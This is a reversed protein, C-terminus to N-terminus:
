GGGSAELRQLNEIQSTSLPLPKPNIPTLPPNVPLLPSKLPLSPDPHYRLLNFTVPQSQIIVNNQSDIIQGAIVHTGRDVNTLVFAPSAQPQGVPKGDMILQYMNGDMLGPNSNLQVVVVGENQRIAEDDKPSSIELSAYTKAAKDKDSPNAANTDSAGPMPTVPAPQYTQAEPLQVAKSSSGPQDSFVPNGQADTSQYIEASAAFTIFCGCVILFTQTLRM